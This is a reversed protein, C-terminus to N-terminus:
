WRCRWWRRRWRRWRRYRWRSYRGLSGRCKTNSWCGAIKRPCLLPCRSAQEGRSPAKGGDNLGGPPDLRRSDAARAAATRSIRARGHVMRRGIAAGATVVHRPSRRCAGPLTLSIYRAPQLTSLCWLVSPAVGNIHAGPQHLKIISEALHVRLASHLGCRGLGRMIPDM